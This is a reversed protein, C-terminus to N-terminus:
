TRRDTRECIDFRSSGPLNENVNMNLPKLLIKRCLYIKNSFPGFFFMKVRVGVYILLEQGRGAKIVSVRRARQSTRTLTSSVAQM